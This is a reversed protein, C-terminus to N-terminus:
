PQSGTLAAPYPVHERIRFGSPPVLGLLHQVFYDWRRRKFYPNMSMAHSGNPVVFVDFDRNARMLADVLQLTLAPPVNDDMEGWALLLKGQLRPALSANVQAAYNDGAPMGQYSEGWIAIYGRQDHNGASSVAVKYVDPYLLMARASAFGGGSHGYIGVRDLDMWPRTAGVQRLAAVHDELGGGTELHGYSYDHFAKSRGPTGRGDVQFGIMGLEVLARHDGGAEFAVPVKGAQPGPYIEELVPYRRTSDFTSPLFLVGHVDTTGDTARAVFPRPWQWGTALLRTLDAQELPLVHRGDLSRAVTVPALDVRSVRDVVWGGGASLTLEHNADEPTLRTLGSGDFGVVYLHRLYPNRGPERGTAVFWIRRAVDDVKLISRVVWPGRTVQRIVAGTRADLLYLHGWGDRQSFWVAERGDATVHLNPREGIGLTAEALTPSREEGITRVAGTAADIARLWFARMGRERELFYATRGAGDWWAESLELSGSYTLPIAPHRAATARGEAVDFIWWTGRAVSDGPFPFPFSWLRPRVGDGHVSQVLHLQPVGREDIRQALLRRSDPSWVALPPQPWGVRALSVSTTNYGTPRAWAHGAEGDTTLPREEGTAIRRVWLDHGKLFAGWQGDPSRLEDPAPPAATVPACDDRALDCRFTRGRVAVQVATVGGAELWELTTFPLSDPALTTDAARGLARALRAHDFAPRRIRRAPDVYTFAAGRPTRVRYWFRDSGAIFTPAIRDRLVLEDANGALLREAREYAATPLAPPQAALPTVPALALLLLVRTSMAPM